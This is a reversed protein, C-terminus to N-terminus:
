AKAAAHVALTSTCKASRGFGPEEQPDAWVCDFFLTDEPDDVSVPVPRVRQVKSIQDLTATNTRCLGGHMVLAERNIRTALPLLNFIDQALAPASHARARQMAVEHWDLSGQGAGGCCQGSVLASVGLLVHYNAAAAPLATLLDCKIILVQLLYFVNADYKAYVEQAFGGGENFGRVNMDLSEHNGRNMHMTGPSCLMFGFILLFIEVAHHGRDAVQLLRPGLMCSSPQAKLTARDLCSGGRWVPHVHECSVPSVDGNVLYVNDQAPLGHARLIWLFDNLQGHTDGVVVVRGSEINIEVLANDAVERLLHEKMQLLLIMVVKQPVAPRLLSGDSHGVSTKIYMLLAEMEALTPANGEFAPGGGDIYEQPLQMGDLVAQMADSNVNSRQQRRVPVSNRRAQSMRSSNRDVSPRRAGPGNRQPSAEGQEDHLQAIHRLVREGERGAQLAEAELVNEM